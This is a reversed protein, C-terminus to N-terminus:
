RKTAEQKEPNDLVNQKARQVKAQM